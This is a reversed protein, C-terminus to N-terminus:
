RIVKELNDETIRWYKNGLEWPEVGPQYIGNIHLHDNFMNELSEDFYLITEEPVIIKVRVNDGSWKRGQPLTFYEDLYLTDNVIRAMYPIEDARRNAESRGPGFSQKEVEVSCSNDESTYLRVNARIYLEDKDTNMFIAYNDDPVDFARDYSLDHVKKGTIVFLTDPSRDLSFDSVTKGQSSFGLGQNALIISLATISLVWIILAVLSIIGDKARFWFVMRIGWYILALVPLVLAVFGLFIIWPTLGPNVVFNLFDPLYFFNGEFTGPMFGPSKFFFILIASLLFAFASLILTVGIIVLFVRFIIFCFRGIASFVQNMASGFSNDSVVETRSVGASESQFERRSTFISRAKNGHLEKKQGESNASPLAIWLGIYIFFGIGWVLAFVVFFLRIWVSQIDMYAGLGGCVGGIVSDDPNRYLTRKTTGSYVPGDGPSDSLDFDEPKGLISIVEEVDEKLIVGTLGRRSQLIEAIRAEIDDITENGGKTNGFRADIAKLYDRLLRYAEEDAQFLVGSLNIKVTKDM